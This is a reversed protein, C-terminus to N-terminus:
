RNSAIALFLTGIGQRESQDSTELQAIVIRNKTSRKRAAGSATACSVGVM